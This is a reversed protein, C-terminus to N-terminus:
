TLTIPIAQSGATGANIVVTAQYTGAALNKPQAFVRVAGNNIYSIPPELAIWGSGSVYNVSDSWFMTGGGVNQVPIYGPLSTMGGGSYATLQIQGGAVPTSLKPFYSAQCDGVTGCDAGPTTAAFRPVPDTSTATTVTSVPALSIAVQAVSSASSGVPLGLFTPIQANEVVSPNSDMVEYVAYGSGNTLTVATVSDLLAPSGGPLPIPTGGAGNADAGFVRSLRLTGSNPVYQGVTISGGLDGGLSPVAADSGAVHDPLYVQAGAPFGSYSLLFRTGSDEGSARAAFASSFGETIRTSAHATGAAILNTFTFTSPVPSGACAIATSAQSALLAPALNGVTVHTRNLSLPTSLDVAVPQGSASLQNVDARIGSIRVTFSGTVPATLVVGNFSIIKGTVSASIGSPTAGGGTDVSLTAQSTFGNADIRNTVSVPLFITFSGSPVAGSGFGSCSM